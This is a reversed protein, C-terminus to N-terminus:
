FSAATLGLGTRPKNARPQHVLCPRRRTRCNTILNATHGGLTDACTRRQRPERAKKFFSRSERERQRQVSQSARCSVCGHATGVGPLPPFCPLTLQPFFGRAVRFIRSKSFLSILVSVFVVFSVLFLHANYLRHSITLLLFPLM